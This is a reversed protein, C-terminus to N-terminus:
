RSTKETSLNNTVSFVGPTGNALMEMLNKTGSNNVYGELTVHGNNVIIRVSPNPERLYGPLAPTNAYTRLLQYRIRNDFGSPPLNQINNVVEDVGEIKRVANEASKRTGLSVVSGYLTVTGGEVKFAIHDFVGYYPLGMIKKFVKREIASQPQQNARSYGQANADVFSFGLIAIAIILFNRFTKM